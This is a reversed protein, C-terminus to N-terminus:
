AAGQRAALGTGTFVKGVACQQRDLFDIGGATHIHTAFFVGQLQHRFVIRAIRFGAGGHCLFGGVIGCNHGHHAM